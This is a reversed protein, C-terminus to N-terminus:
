KNKDYTIIPQFSVSYIPSGDNNRKDKLIIDTVVPKLRIIAGNELKYESWNEKYEVIKVKNSM